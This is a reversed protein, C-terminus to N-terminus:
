TQTALSPPPICLIGDLQGCLAEMQQRFQQQESTMQVQLDSLAGRLSELDSEIDHLDDERKKVNLPVRRKLETDQKQLEFTPETVLKELQGFHETAILAAEQIIVDVDISAIISDIEKATM